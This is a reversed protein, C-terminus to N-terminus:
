VDRRTSPEEHERRNREAVDATHEVPDDSTRAEASTQGETRAREEPSRRAAGAVGAAHRETEERSEGAAHQGARAGRKGEEVAEKATRKAREKLEDSASGMLEDETRTTPVALGSALGLSFALAGMALPAEEYAQRAGEYTGRVGRGLRRAQYSADQRVRHATGEARQGMRAGRDKLDRAGEKLSHAGSKVKEGARELAGASDSELSEGHDYAAGGDGVRDGDRRGVGTGTAAGIGLWALGVGITAVPLPHERVLEVLSVNSRKVRGWVQEAIEGVSLKHELAEVTRTMEARTRRIDQRIEDSSRGHGDYDYNDHNDHELERVARERGDVEAASRDM